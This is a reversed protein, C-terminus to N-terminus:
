IFLKAKSESAIQSSLKALKIACDKSFSSNKSPGGVLLIARNKSEKFIDVFKEKDQEVKDKDISVIAGISEVIKEHEKAKDHKPLVVLDFKSVCINPDMIQIVKANNKSKKKLYLASSVSRRGASIIIDPFKTINKLKNKTELNYRFLSSSFLFNPIKALKSYSINLIEYEEGIEKALAIAQSYTGPRNDALILIKKSNSAM